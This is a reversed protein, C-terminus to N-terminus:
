GGVIKLRAFGAVLKKTEGNAFRVTLIADDGAGRVSLVVGEGFFPHVVRVGRRYPSKEASKASGRRSFPAADPIYISSKPVLDIEEIADAPLERLFVSPTMEEVSGFRTRQAAHTIFVNRKARTIAVYFLRREEELQTEDELARLLPFIGLEMGAIFVTHFELGKAAHVTMLVVKDEGPTWRDVDTMLTVSALFERLNADPNHREFDVAAAILQGINEIRADATLSDEEVLAKLYGSQKVIEEILVSPKATEADRRFHEMMEVFGRLADATNKRVPLPVGSAVFEYISMGAQKALESLKALTASGIGRRPRNIIRKFSLDDDPNVMLRLYALIDKIEMREYFGVGGVVSYPIDNEMLKQEFTRSLANIRYLVAMEGFPVGEAALETMKKVVFEAEAYDDPFRIVRVPEGAPADTYLTKSHRLRNNSILVSAARLIKGTSRYNKELKIIKCNPYYRPFDIINKVQAGRWSYISQDDDGVVTINQHERTLQRLFAFQTENTDQFEDVLIYQFIQSYKHRTREDAELLKVTLSIMDDFDVASFRRLSNQYEAYIKALTKEAPTSAYEAFESPSVMRRKLKSIAAAIKRHDVSKPDLGFDAIIGKILQQSDDADFIVYDHPIGIKEGDIRLIRGCISHFTGVWARKISQGLLFEVRETMEAAAKNTFTVALISDPSIGVERVLYAIKYTLMRTKGSGAGALVLVPGDIAVVGEYQQPNLEKEFDITMACVM